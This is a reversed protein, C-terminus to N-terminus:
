LFYWMFLTVKSVYHGGTVKFISGNDCFTFWNLTKDMTVMDSFIFDMPSFSYSINRLNLRACVSTSPCANPHHPFWLLDLHGRRGLPLPSMIRKHWEGITVLIQVPCIHASSIILIPSSMRVLSLVWRQPWKSTTRSSSKACPRSWRVAYVLCTHYWLGWWYISLLNGWCYAVSLPKHLPSMWMPDLYLHCVWTDAM